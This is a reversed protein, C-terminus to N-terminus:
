GRALDASEALLRLGLAGMVAAALRDIWTKAGLYAARPRSASFTLAVAAYWGAEVLFILPPLALLLWLPPADPLLAAFISAYVVAAKPNSVQTLAALRFSRWASASRPAAAEAIEMPQKAGRWILVALYLLYLGGAAKLGAHLWGVQNLIATLGVLGLVSFFAGGAGMGLAAALGDRRSAALSIRTVLVFSPGPSVAGVFIAAPIAILAATDAM